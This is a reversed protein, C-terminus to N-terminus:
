ADTTGDIAVSVNLDKINTNMRDEATGSVNSSRDNWSGREASSAWTPLATKWFTRWCLREPFVRTRTV